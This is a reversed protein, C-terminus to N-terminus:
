EDIFIKLNKISELVEKRIIRKDVLNGSILQSRVYTGSIELCKYYDFKDYHRCTKETVIGDCKPCFYPGNLYLIDIGLRKEYKKALFHAAYKEYYNGVGAHDRGIIFHTCGYNRRILAHFVAERPGAYRMNTTLTGLLVVNLNFYNDILAEYGTIIAQTTYDGVKKKGILPQIFLGDCIELAVRQLYEHARHPVNRTQFGAITKWGQKKFYLKSEEPSINYLSYEKSSDILLTSKGYNFFNGLSLFHSVGPHNIDTTGFVKLLISQKDVVYAGEFEFIGVQKGNYILDFKNDISSCISLDFKTDFVVPLPFIEGSALSLNDVCSYFDLENMFDSLPFFVGNHINILELYQDERLEIHM